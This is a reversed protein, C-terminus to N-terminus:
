DSVWESDTQGDTFKEKDALYSKVSKLQFWWFQVFCAGQSVRLQYQFHLDNNNVVLDNQGNQSLIRPSDSQGCLLKYHIQTVIVLNAGFTCEPISVGTISFPHWQSQGEFDNQCLIRPFYTQGRFLKHHIQAVIVLNASFMCATIKVAPISFPLWHGQGELDNQGNKSLIKPFKSM